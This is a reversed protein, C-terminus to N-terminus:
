AAMQAGASGKGGAALVQLPAAMVRPYRSIIELLAEGAARSSDLLAVVTGGGGWGSIRAGYVGRDPGIRQLQNILWDAQPCSLGLRLRYSHQSALLLRGARRLILRRQAPALAAAPMEALEEMAQLFNEAHEHESLLHDVATRIRYVQKPEITGATSKLGGFGRLYDQGRLRRPLLSRFYRRYLEPSLNGLYGNLADPRLGLDRYITEIIGLGMAGALRLESAIEGGRRNRVGTNLALLRVEPPLPIQGLLEHPQARYRLLHAPPGEPACLITLADVAHGGSFGFINEAQAILRAKDLTGLPLALVRALGQLLAALVATSAGQAAGIGIDSEVVVTMGIPRPAAAGTLNGALWGRQALLYFLAILPAVWRQEFPLRALLSQPPPLADSSFLEAAPLWVQQQPAPGIRRSLFQLAGDTRGQLGVAARCPLAMQALVGGAEVALGGLVDLRGPASHIVVRPGSAVVAGTRFQEQVRARINAALVM